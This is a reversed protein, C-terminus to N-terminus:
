MVTSRIWNMCTPRVMEITTDCVCRCGLEKEPIQDLYRGILDPVLEGKALTEDTPGYTCYQFPPHVYGFDAFHHVQEPRLLLAAALSHVPADGWRENYFGGKEDLYRFLDRYEASRFFNMDAIEFNSWFHCLNWLDGDDNANRMFSLLPRLPWPVRSPRVMATWLSTTAIDRQEKYRTIERYLSPTTAPLEWLALTYGYSKDNREMEVFPDYTIACTFSIAPEVRWYWRYNKLAPHDYFM